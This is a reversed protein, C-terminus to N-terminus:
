IRLNTKKISFLEPPPLIPINYSVVGHAIKLIQNEDLFNSPIFQNIESYKSFSNFISHGEDSCCPLISKHHSNAYISLLPDNVQENLCTDVSVSTESYAAAEAVNIKIIPNLLSHFCLGGAMFFIASMLFVAVTKSFYKKM